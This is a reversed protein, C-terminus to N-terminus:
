GEGGGVRGGHSTQGAGEMMGTFGLQGFGEFGGGDVEM